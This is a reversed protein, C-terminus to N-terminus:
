SKRLGNFILKETLFYSFVCYLVGGLVDIVYHQGLYFVSFAIALFVPLCISFLRRNLKTMYILFLTAYAIHLSPFAAFQDSEFILFANKIQEFVPSFAIPQAVLNQAQGDFWPPATPLLVFTVLAIYSTLAMSTAYGKFINKNLFWFTVTCLAVLVFHLGYFFTSFFTVTGSYFTNQIIRVVNTGFIAEDISSLNTVSKTNIMVGTIAQLSEYCLLFTIFPTVDKLFEISRKLYVVVPILSFIGIALSFQSIIGYRLYAFIALSAYSLPMILVFKKDFGHFMEATKEKKDM